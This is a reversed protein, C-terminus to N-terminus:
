SAQPVGIRSRSSRRLRRERRATYPNVNGKTSYNDRATGNPATRKYGQVHTGNKKTYGRVSVASRKLPVTRSAAAKTSHRYTSRGKGFATGVILLLSLLLVQLARMAPKFAIMDLHLLCPTASGGSKLVRVCRSSLGSSGRSQGWGCHMWRTLPKRRVKLVSPLV